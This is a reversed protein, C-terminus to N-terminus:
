NAKIIILTLDDGLQNSCFQKVDAVLLDKLEEATHDKNAKIFAELREEGYEEEFGDMAETVGDTFLILFDGPYLRVTASKYPFLTSLAGILLGGTSLEEVTNDSARFLLPANHGANVYTFEKSVTNLIGWFFTIFIDSPTNAFIINNIKGTKEPLDLKSDNLLHLMAQLNAMILSAPIGKGTVDAIAVVLNNDIGNIIDFYDGGVQRSPENMGSIQFNEHQPLTKPLLGNQINRAVNLEKDIREKELQEELLYTKQISMLVLNGLSYLFNIDSEKFEEKNGRVGIGLVAQKKDQLTLPLLLKFPLHEIEPIPHNDRSDIQMPENVKDYLGLLIDDDFGKPIGNKALVDRNGNRDYIFFFSRVFMQGLLAFKFIRVIQEREITTSFEKSLDFLTHLEQVKRDLSRNAQKLDEFLQSNAISVSAIIVLSTIFNFERENFAERNLKPGLLIFGLYQDSTKIHLLTNLQNSRFLDPYDVDQIKASYITNKKLLDPIEWILQEGESFSLKGKCHSAFFRDSVKDYMFVASKTIMLKGMINLLLNSLIFDLDHSEILLRSSDLIARLEFRNHRSDLDEM